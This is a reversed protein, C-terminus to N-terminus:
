ENDAEGVDGYLESDVQDVAGKSAYMVHQYEVIPSRILINNSYMISNGPIFHGISLGAFSNNECLISDRRGRCPVSASVLANLDSPTIEM